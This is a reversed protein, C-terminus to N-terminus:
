RLACGRSRCGLSRPARPSPDRSQRQYVRSRCTVLIHQRGRTVKTCSSSSEKMQEYIELARRTQKRQLCAKILTSFVSTTKSFDPVLKKMNEIM